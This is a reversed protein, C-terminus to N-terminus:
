SRFDSPESIILGVGSVVSSVQPCASLQLSMLFTATHSFYPKLVVCTCEDVYIHADVTETLARLFM